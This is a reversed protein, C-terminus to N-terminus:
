LILGKLKQIHQLFIMIEDQHSIRKLYRKIFRPIRKALKPNKAELVADIDIKFEKTETM